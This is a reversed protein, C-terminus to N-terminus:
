VIQGNLALTVNDILRTNGLSAAALIVLSKSDPLVDRLTVGDRIRIYDPRFGANTLAETGQQELADFNRNGGVIQDRLGTLTSYITPALRRQDPTLYGNRSSLALGDEARITAVGTIEIPLCLDDTMRRIVALQQYDKEGFLAVDPMVMNFLKTVVTSVGDFHGPRSAGELVATIDPVCVKTQQDLSRPYMEAISPMFLLDAGVRQLLAADQEPTRPYKDLDEHAGFQLPNVFISVVVYNSVQKAQKVLTLHGEHLNGMTPVFGIRMGQLRANGVNERLQAITNVIHM